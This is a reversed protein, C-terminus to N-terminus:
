KMLIINDGLVAKLFVSLIQLACVLFEYDCTNIMANHLYSSKVTHTHKSEGRRM